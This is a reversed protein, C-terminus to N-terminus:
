DKQYVISQIFILSGAYAEKSICANVIKNINSYSQLKTWIKNNYKVILKNQLLIATVLVIVMAINNLKLNYFM